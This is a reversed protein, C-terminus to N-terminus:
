CLWDCGIVTVHSRPTNTAFAVIAHQPLPMGSDLREEALQELGIRGDSRRKRSVGM